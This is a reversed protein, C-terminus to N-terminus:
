PYKHTLNANRDLHYTDNFLIKKFFNRFNFHPSSKLLSCVVVLVLILVFLFAEFIELISPDLICIQIWCYSFISSLKGRQVFCLLLFLLLMGRRFFIRFFLFNLKCYLSRYFNLLLFLEIWKIVFRVMFFFLLWLRNLLFVIILLYHYFLLLWCIHFFHLLVTFFIIPLCERLHLFDVNLILFFLLSLFSLMIELYYTGWLLLGNLDISRLRLTLVMSLFFIM